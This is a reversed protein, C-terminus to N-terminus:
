CLSTAELEITAEQSRPMQPQLLKFHYKAAGLTTYQFINLAATKTIKSEYPDGSIKQLLERLSDEAFSGLELMLFVAVCQNNYKKIQEIVKKAEFRLGPYILMLHTGTSSDEIKIETSSAVAQLVKSKDRLLEIKYAKALAGWSARQANALGSQYMLVFFDKLLFHVTSDLLALPLNDNEAETSFDEKFGPIVINNVAKSFDERSFAQPKYFVDLPGPFEEIRKTIILKSAGM